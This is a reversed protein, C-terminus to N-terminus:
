YYKWGDQDHWSVQNWGHATTRWDAPNWGEARTRESKAKAEGKGKPRVNCYNTDHGGQDGTYNAVPRYQGM